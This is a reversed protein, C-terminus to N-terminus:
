SSRLRRLKQQRQEDARIQQELELIWNWVKSPQRIYVNRRFELEHTVLGAELLDRLPKQFASQALGLDIALDTPNVRGDPAHAIAVMLALRHAQGFLLRSRAEMLESRM